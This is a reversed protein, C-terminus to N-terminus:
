YKFAMFNSSSNLPINFNPVTDESKPCYTKQKSTAKTLQFLLSKLTKEVGLILYSLVNNYM